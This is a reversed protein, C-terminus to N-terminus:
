LPIQWDGKTLHLTTFFSVTGLRDLPEDIRPMLYAEFRSVPPLLSFMDAFQEQLQAIDTRQTGFLHDECSSQHM